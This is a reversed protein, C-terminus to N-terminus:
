QVNNCWYCCCLRERPLGGRWNCNFVMTSIGVQLAKHKGTTCEITYDARLYERGDDLTECGFMRFVTSSVSSYVLFTVLLAMSFHKRRVAQLAEQSGHNRRAAVQFCVGLACLALLPGLTSILLRDHFDAKVICGASLVLGVDLSVLSAVGDLFQGYVGAYTVNAVADFQSSFVLEVSLRHEVVTAM